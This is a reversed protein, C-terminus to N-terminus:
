SSTHWGHYVLWLTSTPVIILISKKLGYRFLISRMHPRIPIAIPRITTTKDIVPIMLWIRIPKVIAQIENIYINILGFILDCGSIAGMDSEERWMNNNFM